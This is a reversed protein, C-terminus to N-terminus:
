NTLEQYNILNVKFGYDRYKKLRNRANDKILRENTVVEILNVFRSFFLCDMNSVNILLEDFCYHFKNSILINEHPKKEEPYEGVHHPYFGEFQWLSDSINKHGANAFILTKQNEYFNCLILGLGNTFHDVNYLFDIKTM